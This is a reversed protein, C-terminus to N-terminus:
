GFADLFDLVADENEQSAVDPQPAPASPQQILQLLGTISNNKQIETRVTQIIRELFADEQQRQELDQIHAYLASVAARCLSGGCSDLYEFIRQDQEKDLNLRIKINKIAM